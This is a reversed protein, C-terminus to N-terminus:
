GQIVICIQALLLFPVFPFSDKRGAKRFVLLIGSWVAAFMLALLFLHLVTVFGLAAGCAAVVMGDGYGLAEKTAWSIFLLGVGLFLGALIEWIEKDGQIFHLAVAVAIFILSLPWWIQKQLLDTMTCIGLFIITLMLFM